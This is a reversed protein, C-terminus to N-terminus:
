PSGPKASKWASGTKAAKVAAPLAAAIPLEGGLYFYGAFNEDHPAFRCLPDQGAAIMGVVFTGAGGDVLAWAALVEENMEGAKNRTRAVWGTAPTLQLIKWTDKGVPM